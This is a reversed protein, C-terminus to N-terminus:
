ATSDHAALFSDVLPLWIDPQEAFCLHSADPIVELRSGPVRAHIERLHEPRCEDYEGGTILTPVTIEGLRDMIDWDKLTGVIRFESPGAMYHYVATAIRDFSRVVYDPWPDLRCVHRRYFPQMAEEYEPSDTMGAAELREIEARESKPMEDLLAQCIQNWRPSSAPSGAMVLSAPLRDPHDLVYQMALMGGWSSGFLHMRQLGLQERVADLEQEFREVTFLSRDETLDSNGCGLQDYFIVRRSAALAELPQLYDSPAGPGGHLCLLPVGGEGVSRYWVQGGPVALRGEQVTATM